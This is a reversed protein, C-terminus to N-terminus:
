ILFGLQITGYHRQWASQPQTSGKHEHCASQSRTSGMHGHCASQPRTSGMHGHCASQPQTSGMHGQEEDRSLKAKIQVASHQSNSPSSYNQTQLSNTQINVMDEAQTQSGPFFRPFSSCAKLLQMAETHTAREEPRTLTSPARRVTVTSKVNRKM